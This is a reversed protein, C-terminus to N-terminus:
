MMLNTNFDKLFSSSGFHSEIFSKIKTQRMKAEQEKKMREEERVRKQKEEELKKELELARVRQIMNVLEDISFARLIMKLDDKFMSKGNFRQTWYNDTNMALVNQLMFLSFFIFPFNAKM